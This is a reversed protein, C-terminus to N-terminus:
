LLRVTKKAVRYAWYYPGYGLNDFCVEHSPKNDVGGVYVQFTILDPDVYTVKWVDGHQDLVREGVSLSAALGVPLSYEVRPYKAEKLWKTEPKQSM